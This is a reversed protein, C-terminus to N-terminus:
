LSDQNSAAGIVLHSHKVHLSLLYLGTDEGIVLNGCAKVGVEDIFVLEDQRAMLITHNAHVVQSLSM